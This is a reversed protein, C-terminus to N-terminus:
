IAREADVGLSTTGATGSTSERMTIFSKAL